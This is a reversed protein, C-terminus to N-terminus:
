QKTADGDIKWDGIESNFFSRTLDLAPWFSFVVSYDCLEKVIGVILSM